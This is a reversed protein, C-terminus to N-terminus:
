AGLDDDSWPESAAGECTIRWRDLDLGNIRYCYVLASLMEYFEQYIRQQRLIAHAAEDPTLGEQKVPCSIARKGHRDYFVRPVRRGNLERMVPVLRLPEMVPWWAPLEGAEAAMIVQRRAEGKLNRRIFADITIADIHATLSGNITGGGTGGQGALFCAQGSSRFGGPGTEGQNAARVNETKYAWVVAAWATKDLRLDVNPNGSPKNTVRVRNQKIM